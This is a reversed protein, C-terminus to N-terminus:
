KVCFSKVVDYLVKLGWHLGDEPIREDIGHFLDSIKIELRPDFWLPTFGYWRMGLTTFYEADTFGGSMYPVVKLSPDNQKVAGKICSWLASDPPHNVMGPSQKILEYTIEKGARGRLERILDDATQGPLLRGDIEALAEAPLVNTAEGARLVTPTVTNHLWARFNRLSEISHPLYELLRSGIRPNLLLLLLWQLTKPQQKALERIFTEVVPTKHYSLPSKTIRELARSLKLVASDKRPISGHGSPGLARLRLWCIGKEATMVLTFLNKGFAIPFGGVEGLAFGANVKEPHNEVLFKSGLECGAEEDAVAAFIIDRKLKAERRALLKLVMASMAVMHKMDIAGRGWIMGQHLEGGFPPCTWPESEPASVVDLHTALLLPPEQSGSSFRCILNARGQAPEIIESTLGDAALSDQLLTAAPLENGPPNSTDVRLLSQLLATVEGCADQWDKPNLNPPPTIRM